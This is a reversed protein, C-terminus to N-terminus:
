TEKVAEVLAILRLRDDELSRLKAHLVDNECLSNAQARRLAARDEEAQHACTKLSVRLQKYHKHVDHIYSLINVYAAYKHIIHYKHICTTIYPIINM